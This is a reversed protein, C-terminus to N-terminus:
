GRRAADAAAARRAAGHRLRRNPGNMLSGASFGARDRDPRGHILTPAHGVGPIEVVTARPGRAAMQAATQRAHAPGDARRAAGADPLTDREYFNWLSRRRQGADARQLGGRDCSRLAHAALRRREKRVVHETLFRWEADSHPGFSASVARVFQEATEITPLPPWKGVYAGIRQLAAVTLVPGVDNLVLRQIPSEPMACDGHRHAALSTGLWHV